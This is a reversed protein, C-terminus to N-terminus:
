TEAPRRPDWDDPLAAPRPTTSTVDVSRGDAASEAISALVDLVHFALRGSAREPRGEAIARALEVVGVGRGAPAGRAPVEVPREPDDTWLTSAGDFANPDPLALAGADGELELLPTRARFSEFSFVAHASAGGEFELLATHATPVEVAFEEGARPGSGIVRTARSTSSTATVRRAPGLLQVLATVYYPGMDLLPGAGARFLFEPAPHWAEPGGSRFLATAHLPRGIRGADVLRQATQLGPGLFTDPASAVRLGLADARELLTRAGTRDVALPKESWVHKGAELAALGVDVHAAPITLNVVIDVDDRALLAGVSCAEVGFRDAQAGARAPDLDAIGRVALDPFSTLHDLYTSSIVGAGVIGVGTRRTV